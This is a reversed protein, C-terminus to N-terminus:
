AAPSGDSFRIVGSLVGTPASFSFVSSPPRTAAVFRSFDVGDVTTNAAVTIVRADKVVATGPYYTPQEVSGAAVYYRGPPVELKYQGMADTQTISELVTGASADAPDRVPVAFVRVGAAPMGTPLLVRGNIFGAPQAGQIWFLLLFPILM